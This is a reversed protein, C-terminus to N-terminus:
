LTKKSHLSIKPCSLIEIMWEYLDDIHLYIKSTTDKFSMKIYRNYIVLFQKSMMEYENMTEPNHPKFRDRLELAMDKLLRFFNLKETALGNLIKTAKAPSHPILLIAEYIAEM